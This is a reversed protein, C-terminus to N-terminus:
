LIPSSESLILKRALQISSPISHKSYHKKLFFNTSQKHLQLFTCGAVLVTQRTSNTKIINFDQKSYLHKQYRKIQPKNHYLTGTERDRGRERRQSVEPFKFKFKKKPIIRRECQIV